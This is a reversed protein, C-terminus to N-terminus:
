LGYEDFIPIMEDKFEPHYKDLTERANLPKDKKTLRASEWDIMAQIYDNKTHHKNKNLHHGAIKRHIFTCVKKPLFLYLILKDADHLYGRFTNKGLLQKEVYLFAKKHKWTYEIYKKNIPLMYM